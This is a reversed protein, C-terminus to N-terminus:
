CGTLPVAELDYVFADTIEVTLREGPEFYNDPLYIEGDVEPAHFVSRAAIRGEAEESPGDVLAEVRKGVWDRNIEWSIEQQLRMIIDLREAKIREPVQGPMNYAPTNEERSYAFAGLRELRRTRVFDALQEFESETEGPFGVMVTTRIVAGPIIRRITNITNELEVRSGPRGMRKLVSDAAHQVPIDVYPCINPFSAITELVDEKLHAPHSYMVRIWTDPLANATKKLLHALKQKGYRDIGYMATDQGVLVIEKAGMEVMETAEAIIHSTPRSRFDGKIAPITCYACRNKCGESIKVYSFPEDGLSRRPEKRPLFGKRPPLTFRRKHQLANEIIRPLKRYDTASVWADVGPLAEGIDTEGRHREPMCGAVVLAKVEGGYKHEQLEVLTEASEEEADRVFACTFLLAVDAPGDSDVIGYGEKELLGAVTEADARNKACGLILIKVSAAM